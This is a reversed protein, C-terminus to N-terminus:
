VKIIPVISIGPNHPLCLFCILSLSLRKCLDCLSPVPLQVLGFKISFKFFQFFIIVDGLWMFANFSYFADLTLYFSKFVLFAAFSILNAHCLSKSSPLLGLLRSVRVALFAEVLDKIEDTDYSFYVCSHMNWFTRHSLTCSLQCHYISLIETKFRSPYVLVTLLSDSPWIVRDSISAARKDSWDLFDGPASLNGTSNKKM